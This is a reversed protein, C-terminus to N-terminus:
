GTQFFPKSMVSNKVSIGLVSSKNRFLKSLSALRVPGMAVQLRSRTRLHAEQYSM